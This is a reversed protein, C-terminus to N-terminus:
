KVSQVNLLCYRDATPIPCHVLLKSGDPSWVFSNRPPINMAFSKFEPLLHISQDSTIDVLYLGHHITKSDYPDYASPVDELVLLHLSDPTWTLDVVYHRDETDSLTTGFTHLNGTISDLVVAEVTSSLGTYSNPRAIALYRGNPSWHAVGSWGGFNLECVHGTATDWIFTYGGNRSVAGAESYLFVLSTGPQWTMRYHVSNEDRREKAYDWQDPDFSSPSSLKKLSKDLKAIQKGSFYIMEGSDSKAVFPIQQSLNDTLLQTTNPDGDSVMLQSTSQYVNNQKDVKTYNKFTYMVANIDPLWIPPEYAIARMAYLKSEGTDINYLSISQQSVTNNDVRQNFLDETVLIQQNDPLWEAVDLFNGKPATLVVQPESFTYEEPKSEEAKIEALPFTCAPPQKGKARDNELTSIATPAPPTPTKRAAPQNATTKVAFFLPIILILGIVLLIELTGKINNQKKM